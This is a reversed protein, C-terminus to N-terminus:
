YSVKADWDLEENGTSSAEFSIIPWYNTGITGQDLAESENIESEALKIYENIAYRDWDCL